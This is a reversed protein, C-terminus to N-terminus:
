EPCTFFFGVATSAYDLLGLEPNGSFGVLTCCSSRSPAFLRFGTLSDLRISGRIPTRGQELAPRAM